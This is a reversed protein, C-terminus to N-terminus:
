IRLGRRRPEEIVSDLASLRSASSQQFPSPSVGGLSSMVCDRGSEKAMYLYRDAEAVISASDMQDKFTGVGFSATVLGARQIPRKRIARRMREAIRLAGELDTEPCILLFEEGGWRGLHDTTRMKRHTRRAITALVVDGVPHGYTDNVSKFHDIDFMVVSFPKRYRQSRDFEQELVRLTKRRNYLGTLADTGADTLLSSAEHWRRWAFLAIFLSSAALCLSLEELHWDPHKRTMAIFYRGVGGYLVLGYCLVCAVFLALLDRVGEGHELYWRRLSRWNAVM